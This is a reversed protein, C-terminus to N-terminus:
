ELEHSSPATAAEPTTPLTAEDTGAPVVMEPAVENLKRHVPPRSLITM